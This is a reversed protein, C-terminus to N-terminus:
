VFDDKPRLIATKLTVGNPLVLYFMCQKSYDTIAVSKIVL